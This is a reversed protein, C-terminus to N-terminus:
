TNWWNGCSFMYQGQLFLSNGINATQLEDMISFNFKFTAWDQQKFKAFNIITTQLTATDNCMSLKQHHSTLKWTAQSTLKFNMKNQQPPNLGMWLGSQQSIVFPALFMVFRFRCFWQVIICVAGAEKSAGIKYDRYEIRNNCDYLKTM